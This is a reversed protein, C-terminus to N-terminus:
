QLPLYLLMCVAWVWHSRVSHTRNYFVAGAMTVCDLKSNYLYIDIRCYHRKYLYCALLFNPRTPSIAYNAFPLVIDITQSIASFSGSYFSFLTTFFFTSVSDIIFLFFFMFTFLNAYFSRKVIFNLVFM